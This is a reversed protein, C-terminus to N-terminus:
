IELIFGDRLHFDAEEAPHALAWYSFEDERTKVVTTIGVQLRQQRAILRDLALDLALLYRHRTQEIEFSVSEFAPELRMGQRYDDFSYVNWDRSPSFNFEWYKPLDPMALFCEFCTEQWLNDRRQPESVPEPWCIAALSGSLEYQLTIQNARRSLSGGIEINPLSPAQPHPNLCFRHITM